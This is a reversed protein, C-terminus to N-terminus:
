HTIICTYKLLIVKTVNQKRNFSYNYIFGAPIKNNAYEPTDFYNITYTQNNEKGIGSQALQDLQRYKYFCLM